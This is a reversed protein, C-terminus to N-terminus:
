DEQEIGAEQTSAFPASCNHTDSEQAVADRDIPRAQQQDKGIPWVPLGGGGKSHLGVALHHHLSAAVQVRDPQLVSLLAFRLTPHLEIGYLLSDFGPPPISGRAENDGGPGPPNFSLWPCVVM